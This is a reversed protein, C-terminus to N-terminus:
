RVERPNAPDRLDVSPGDVRFAELPRLAYGEPIDGTTYYSVFLKTAEDADFVEFRNIRISSVAVNPAPITIDLPADEEHPHGITYQVWAAGWQQGGRKCIEVTLEDASGAAQLYLHQEASHNEMMEVYNNGPALALLTIAWQTVGDLRHLPGSFYYDGRGGSFERVVSGGDYVLAHTNV